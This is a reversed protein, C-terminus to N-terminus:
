GGVSPSGRVHRRHLHRRDGDRVGPRRRPCRSRRQRASRRRLRRSAPRPTGPDCSRVRTSRDAWHIKEDDRWYLVPWAARDHYLRTAISSLTDGVEYTAPLAHATARQSVQASTLRDGRGAGRHCGAFRPMWYPRICKRRPQRVAASPSLCLAAAVGALTPAAAVAVGQSLRIRSPKSHRGLPGKRSSRAWRSHARALERM